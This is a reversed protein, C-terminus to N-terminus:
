SFIPAKERKGYILVYQCVMIGFAINNPAIKKATLRIALSIKTIQSASITKKIAVPIELEIKLESSFCAMAAITSGIPFKAFRAAAFYQLAM